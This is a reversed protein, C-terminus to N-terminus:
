REARVRIESANGHLHFYPFSSCQMRRLGSEDIGTGASLGQSTIQEEIDPASDSM